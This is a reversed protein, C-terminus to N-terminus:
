RRISPCNTIQEYNSRSSIREQFQRLTARGLLTVTHTQGEHYKSALTPDLNAEYEAGDDTLLVVRLSAIFKEAIQPALQERFVRDKFQQNRIFRDFVDAPNGGILRPWFPWVREFYDAEDTKPDRPRAVTISVRLEGDLSELPEEAFMGLPLDSGVYNLQIREIADFAALM